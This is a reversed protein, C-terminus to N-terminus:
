APRSQAVGINRGKTHACVPLIRRAARPCWPTAHPKGPKHTSAARRHQAGSPPRGCRLGFASQHKPESRDVQTRRAVANPARSEPATTHLRPTSTTKAKSPKPWATAAGPKRSSMKRAPALVATACRNYLFAGCRSGRGRSSIRSGDVGQQEQATNDPWAACLVEAKSKWRTSFLCMGGGGGGPPCGIRCGACQQSRYAWASEPPSNWALGFDRWGHANRASTPLPHGSAM